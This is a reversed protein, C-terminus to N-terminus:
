SRSTEDMVAFPNFNRIEKLIKNRNRVIYDVFQNKNLDRALYVLNKCDFLM